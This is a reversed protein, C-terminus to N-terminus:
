DLDNGWGKIDKMAEPSVYINLLEQEKLSHLAIVGKIDFTIERDAALLHNLLLQDWIEDNKQKVFDDM